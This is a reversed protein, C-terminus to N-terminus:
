PDEPLRVTTTRRDAETIIWVRYYPEIEYASFLRYHTELARDNLQKGEYDIDGWDGRVHRHLLPVLDIHGDQFLRHVNQTFLLTGLQFKPKTTECLTKLDMRLTEM